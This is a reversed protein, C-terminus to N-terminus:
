KEDTSIGRHMYQELKKTDIFIKAGLGWLKLPIWWPRKRLIKNIIYFQQKVYAKIERRQTQKIKNKSM